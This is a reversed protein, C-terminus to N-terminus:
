LNRALRVIILLGVWAGALLRATIQDPINALFWLAPVIAALAFALHSM